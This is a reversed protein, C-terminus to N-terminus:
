LLGEGVEGVQRRFEDISEDATTSVPRLPTSTGARLSIRRAVSGAGRARPRQAPLQAPLQPQACPQQIAGGPLVRSSARAPSMARTNAGADLSAVSPATTGRCRRKWGRRPRSPSPATLPLSTNFMCRNTASAGATSRARGRAATDSLRWGPATRCSRWSGPPATSGARRPEAVVAVALPALCCIAMPSNHVPSPQGSRRPPTRRCCRRGPSPPWACTALSLPRKPTRRM